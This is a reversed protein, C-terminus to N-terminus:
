KCSVLVWGNPRKVGRRTESGIVSKRGCGEVAWNQNPMLVERLDNVELACCNNEQWAVMLLLIILQTALYFILTKQGVSKYVM